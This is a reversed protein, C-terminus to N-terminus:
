IAANRGRKQAWEVLEILTIVVKGGEAWERIQRSLALREEVRGRDAAAEAISELADSLTEPPM